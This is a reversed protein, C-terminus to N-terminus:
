LKIVKFKHPPRNAKRTGEARTWLVRVSPSHEVRCQFCHFLPVLTGGPLQEQSYKNHKIDERRRAAAGDTTAASRLIDQSWLQALAVDLEVNGGCTSDFVVLDARKNATTYRDKPEIQHQCQLSSLCESDWVFSCFQSVM